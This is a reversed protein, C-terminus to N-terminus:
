IYMESIDSPIKKLIDAELTSDMADPTTDAALRRHLYTVIDDRKSTMSISTVRGALHRGIEPQIHPSGTVFIRTGPSLQLLQCLADVLNARHETACEDLADICIFARKRASTTELMKLIKSMQPGQGSANKRTDLLWFFIPPWNPLCKLQMFYYSRYQDAVDIGVKYCNYDRTIIPIPVNLPEQSRFTLRSALSNSSSICPKKRESMVRKELRHITTLFHVASDNQWQVTLVKGAADASARGGSVEKSPINKRENYVNPPFASINVRATGCAGMGLERLQILRALSPFYNDM